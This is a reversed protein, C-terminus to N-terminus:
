WHHACGCAFRQAASRGIGLLGGPLRQPGLDGPQLRLEGLEDAPAEREDGGVRGAGPPVPQRTGTQAVEALELPGTVAQGSPERLQASPRRSAAFVLMM